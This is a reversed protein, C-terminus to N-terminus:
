QRQTEQVTGQRSLFQSSTVISEILVQFRFDNANLEHKLKVILPEDSLQLSRGLAYSLMSRCLHDLFDDQRYQQLYSLLGPIGDGSGGGPFTVLDDVRNGSADTDRHQGIPNFGEFALGIADFRDHCGACATQSRHTALIERLSRDKLKTEDQPLDPVNPPPAPIKEGLLRRVVWYGRKVPSTRLGPSNKTLFVSMGALGGRGLGALGDFRQWQGDTVEGPATIGYHAALPQNVFSYDAYLLDLISEDNQVLHTFLRLPEQYMAARLESTFSSFRNRDVGNHEEFRRIDLWNAAFESALGAVNRDQLLRQTQERLVIEDINGRQDVGDQLAAILQADPASSWLFFSLRSALETANLREIKPSTSILDTRYLFQPSMLMAVICDRIADQHSLNQDIRLSEYFAVLQQIQERSASYRYARRALDELSRLQAQEAILRTQVVNSIEASINEFYSAAAQRAVQGAGEQTMKALYEVSLQQILEPTAANLNEPRAFDFQPDRMFGSDTREFWLFGQYQRLPANTITDLELWLRDLMARQNRDLVLECLPQDDRFYGMMSHFGASLLRGKEQKEKPVDLYDRGRESVFFEDPFVRCFLAVSNLMAERSSDDAPVTLVDADSASPLQQSDTSELKEVEPDPESERESSQILASQDFKMRHAAYQRNKWLVFSQSGKHVSGGTLNTWQPSLRSRIRKIWRVMDRIADRRETATDAACVEHFMRQLKALPGWENKTTLTTFLLQLYRSSLQRSEILNSIETSAVERSARQMAACTDIYDHLDVDHEIYFDVIRNVCYKDRDTDTVVPHSAFRLGDPSFIVHDAVHRAASLYKQLLAPSMTLSEGTNDFGSANAPDVPFIASPRLDVGTLDRVCNDYESNSLRRALVTGPKGADKEAAATRLHRIRRVFTEVEASAPSIDSGAPPMEGAELRQMILQWHQHESSISAARDFGSLDLQAEPDVSGHCGLCYSSLFGRLEIPLLSDDDASVSAPFFQGCCSVALCACRVAVSLKM